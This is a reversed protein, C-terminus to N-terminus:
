GMVFREERDRPEFPLRLASNGWTTHNPLRSQRQQRSTCGPSPTQHQGESPPKPRIDCAHCFPTNRTAEPHLTDIITGNNSDKSYCESVQPGQILSINEPNNTHNNDQTDEPENDCPPDHIASEIPTQRPMNLLLEQVTRQLSAIMDATSSDTATILTDDVVVDFVVDPAAAIRRPELIRYDKGRVFPLMKTKNRVFLAKDFAQQIDEWFIVDKNTDQDTSCDIHTINPSDLPVSTTPHLESKYVSRFGQVHDQITGIQTM